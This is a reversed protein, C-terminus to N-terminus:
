FRMEASSGFGHFYAFVLFNKSTPLHRWVDIFMTIYPVRLKVESMENNKHRRDRRMVQFKLRQNNFEVGMFKTKRWCLIGNCLGVVRKWFELTPVQSGVELLDRKHNTVITQLDLLAWDIFRKGVAELATRNVAAKAAAKTAATAEASRFRSPLFSLPFSCFLTSVTLFHTPIGPTPGSSVM